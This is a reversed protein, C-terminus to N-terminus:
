IEIFSSSFLNKITESWKHLIKMGQFDLYSNVYFHSEEKMKNVTAKTRSFPLQFHPLEAKKPICFKFFKVIM